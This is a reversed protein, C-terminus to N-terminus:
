NNPNLTARGQLKIPPPLPKNDLLLEEEYHM